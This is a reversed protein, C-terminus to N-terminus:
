VKGMMKFMMDKMPFDMGKMMEMCQPMMEQMFSKDQMALQCFEPILKKMVEKQEDKSLKRFNSLFDDIKKGQNM